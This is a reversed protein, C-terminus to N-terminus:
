DSIKSLYWPVAVEMGQRINHTPEYGLLSRAKDISALSHRVDGIRFDQFNVMKESHISNESLVDSIMGHLENLSTREGVAINYIQNKANPEDTFASLINAQVANDIFCIGVPKGDGNIM